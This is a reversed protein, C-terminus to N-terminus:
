KIFAAVIVSLIASALIEHRQQLVHLRLIHEDNDAAPKAADHEAAVAESM